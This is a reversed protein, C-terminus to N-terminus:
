KEDPDAPEKLFKSENCHVDRWDSEPLTLLPVDGMENSKSNNEEMATSIDRDPKGINWKITSHIVVDTVDDGAGGSSANVAAGM